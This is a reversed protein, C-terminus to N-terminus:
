PTQTEGISRQSGAAIESIRHNKVVGSEDFVISLQNIYTTKGKYLPIKMESEETWEYFFMKENDVTKTPAGFELLVEQKTTKGDIISRAIRDDSISVGHKITTYGCASILLLLTCLVFLPYLHRKTNM